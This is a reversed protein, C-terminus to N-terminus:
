KIIIYKYNKFLYRHSAKELNTGKQEYIGQQIISDNENSIFVPLDNKEILTGTVKVTKSKQESVYYGDPWSDMGDMWISEGNKTTLLAGLKMNITQGTVTISEGILEKLDRNQINEKGIQQPNSCAYTGFISLILFRKIILLRRM